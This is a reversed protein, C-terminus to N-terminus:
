FKSLEDTNIKKVTIKIYDGRELQFLDKINKPIVVGISSGIEIIKCVAQLKDSM